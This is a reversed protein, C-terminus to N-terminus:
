SVTIAFRISMTKGSKMHYRVLMSDPGTFDKDPLFVFTTATKASIKGHKPREAFEIHKAGSSPARAGVGGVNITLRCPRNKYAGLSGPFDEQVMTTTHYRALCGLMPEQAKAPLATVGMFFLCAAIKRM